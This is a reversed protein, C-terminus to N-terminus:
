AFEADIGSWDRAPKVPECVPVDGFDLHGSQLVLRLASVHKCHHHAAHGRCTCYDGAVGAVPILVDESASGADTCGGKKVLRFARAAPSGSEIEVVIYESVGRRGHLRLLGGRETESPLYHLVIGNAETKTPPLWDCHCTPTMDAEGFISRKEPSHCDVSM